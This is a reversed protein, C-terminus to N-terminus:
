ASREYTLEAPVFLKCADAGGWVFCFLVVLVLFLGRGKNVVNVEAEGEM